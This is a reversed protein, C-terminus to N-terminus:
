HGFRALYEPNRESLEGYIELCTHTWTRVWNCFHLNPATWLCAGHSDFLYRRVPQCGAAPDLVAEVVWVLSVVPSCGPPTHPAQPTLTQHGAHAL